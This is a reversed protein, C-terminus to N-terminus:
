RQTYGNRRCHFADLAVCKKATNLQGINVNSIRACPTFNVEYRIRKNVYVRMTRSHETSGHRQKQITDGPIYILEYRIKDDEIFINDMALALKAAQKYHSKYTEYNSSYFKVLVDM